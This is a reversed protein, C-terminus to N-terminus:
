ILNIQVLRSIKKNERMVQFEKIKEWMMGRIMPIVGLVENAINTEQLQM